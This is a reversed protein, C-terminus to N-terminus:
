KVENVETGARGQHVVLHVVDGFRRQIVLFEQDRSRTTPTVTAGDKQDHVAFGAQRYFRVVQDLPAALRYQALRGARRVFRAGEPVPFVGALDAAARLETPRPVRTPQPVAPAPRPLARAEVQAPPSPDDVPAPSRCAVVLLLLVAIRM